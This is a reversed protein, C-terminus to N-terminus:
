KKQVGPLCVILTNAIAAVSSSSSFSSTTIGNDKKYAEILWGTYPVKPIRAMKLRTEDVKHSSSYRSYTEKMMEIATNDLILDIHLALAVGELTKYDYTPGLGGCTM